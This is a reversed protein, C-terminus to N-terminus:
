RLCLWLGRRDGDPVFVNSSCRWSGQELCTEGRRRGRMAAGLPGWFAGSGTDGRVKVETREGEGKEVM